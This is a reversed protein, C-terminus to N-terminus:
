LGHKALHPEIVKGLEEAMGPVYGTHKYLIAGDVGIVYMQPIGSTAYKMMAPDTKLLLKYTYGNDRMFKVPDGGREAGDMGIVVVGRSNYKKHVKELDPMVMRCPGCWTAWFDLVVVQGIYDSLSHPVGNEDNFTWDPARNGVNYGLPATSPKINEARPLDNLVPERDITVEAVDAAGGPADPASPPKYTSVAYILGGVIFLVLIGFIVKNM